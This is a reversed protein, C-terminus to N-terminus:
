HAHDNYSFSTFPVKKTKLKNESEGIPDLFLNHSRSKSVLIEFHKRDQIQATKYCTESTVILSFISNDRYRCTLFLCHM